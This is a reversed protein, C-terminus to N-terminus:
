RDMKAGCKWCYPVDQTVAHMDVAGCISCFYRKNGNELDEARQWEQQAEIWYGHEVKMTHIVEEGYSCYSNEGVTIANNNCYGRTTAYDYVNTGAPVFFKCNRCRIVDVCDPDYKRVLEKLEEIPVFREGTWLEEAM